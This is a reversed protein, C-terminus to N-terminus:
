ISHIVNYARLLRDIFGSPAVENFMTCINQDFGYAALDEGNMIVHPLNKEFDVILLASADYKYQNEININERHTFANFIKVFKEIPVFKDKFKVINSKMATDDLEKLPLLYVEGMVLNKARLRLNLTEAFTREMLTDFNKDVSSMQSRVGIVISKETAELGIPDIKGQNIGFDIITPNIAGTTFVIDQNKAKLLGYIKLEPKTKGIPPHVKWNDKNLREYISTKVLEHINMILTQSRILAEKAEHGNSYDDFGYRANKISYFLSSQFDILTAVIKEKKM